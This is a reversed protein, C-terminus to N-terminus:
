WDDGDVKTFTVASRGSVGSTERWGGRARLWYRTMEPYEGSVAMQYATWAVAANAYLAGLRLEEACRRKLTSESICLVKAILGQPVGRGALERVNTRTEATPEWRPRGTRNQARTRTRAYPSLVRDSSQTPQTRPNPPASSVM